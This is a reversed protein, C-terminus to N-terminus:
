KKLQSRTFRLLEFAMESEHDVELRRSLMRSIMEQTLPYKKEVLMHICIRTDMLLLHIGCSDCLRWSILTYDQQAKWIEDEESPEFLTILDGWLLRDYGERSTTLRYLDLVDQRDLDDLMASFIKYHKTSGDARIIEYYMKDKALIHTKWDVIPYKTALSDVNVVEDDKPVIELFAKLEAKEADDEVKQRKVSEEDLKEGARKKSVAEKRSSEAKKGSGEVEESDMPVFSNVRKMEKDFLKQIEDYTKNKLQTHKYGAINKLYTSMQNRKQAKTPPKRRFEEARLKAFAEEKQGYAEYDVEMMAQTNDWSILNAEEERQRAVREEEELEAQLEKPEDTSVSVGATTVLASATTVNIDHSYRGQTEADEQVFLIGEDQKFENRGQKSADEQDGLSKEASSEIMSKFLRRKLQPTRSKKKKELQKVRKKLKKIELAQADKANELDLVRHSLKTCIEMLENLKMRDEGSGLTNVRLLPPDNSQKSLREFRTQAPIDGLITYQHRPGSGSDHEAELSAATTTAREVSDGREEYVTEDVDEDNFQLDRRVSSESIVITKGNVKACIQRENNVIKIKTTSWLQEIYSVYIMPSVTLAYRIPSYNLFDVIEDFDVHEISKELYAVMNHSDVFEILSTDRKYDLFVRLLQLELPLRATTLLRATSVKAKRGAANLRLNGTYVEIEDFLIELGNWDDINHDTHIKIVQILRKEYSDKIFHHRIEIHKTKSHFMPNKVICITSENDIFIKTNMFNYGYDLMQNQIWLVQGCFSSAAVYEVETTSNAVVTQAFMIDPRSSTLYMLSGIMSRYLHVDVDEANEDKMLPKSTEMTTSATNVTSFDFKKLIEDTYKDQSIFIGDEKQTVQLGLFFTLDGMSSMQFKKHMMKEFEICMENLTKDIKYIRDPFELDEFGSPQCVYVEEEIKGYLFASKVDMQYVIFYKFSAYALFLRIAEIRAVREDKKNRYVWKTGIARKGYPLDVLTWVKQLKFQLLEDQMAEIWSPDTLAQTVKKPEVHDTVSKTMRRTQPASLIDRIIQEVLHDKHIRTTLIPSALIHTGLNTIDAEAGVGEDDDSYVIEELNPMNPDDACGIDINENIANDEIGAANVTLSVININNTSNVDKDGNNKQQILRKFEDRLVQDDKDDQKCSVRSEKEPVETVKKGTYDETNKKKEEESPKFGADSSDNSSSSFPPDANDCAKTCASGNSQNCAVVPEYNMSKTLADIDFLWNPGSGAINPTDESFKVHLNEEVIRTRSNFVRFTKSNTSYRVFFGEDAMGDFKGLHDITNLITVPCGFPIMFSFAPKRCIGHAGKYHNSSQKPRVLLETNSQQKGKQCAVYTQNIKFLKSPLGRVLNGRVLKNITKFNVHGLRRHWLNSEDLTAKVFLCTLGGQPVVNKLDINYMNDKRPVKLLVHSEDTLKFDKRTIKGGKTSGGFAVFGEDIEEYDTLYSINGTM